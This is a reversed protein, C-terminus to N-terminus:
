QTIEASIIIFAENYHPNEIEKIFVETHKIDILYEDKLLDTMVPLNGHKEILDALKQILETALVQEKQKELNLSIFM